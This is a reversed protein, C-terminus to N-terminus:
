GVVVRSASDSVDPDRPVVTVNVAVTEEVLPTGVPVTIKSSPDVTMPVEVREPPTALM